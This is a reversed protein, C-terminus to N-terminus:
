SEPTASGDLGDLGSSAVVNHEAGHLQQRGLGALLYPAMTPHIRPSGFIALTAAAVGVYRGTRWAWGAFALAAAALVLWMPMPIPLAGEQQLPYHEIGFPLVMAWLAVAILASLAARGYERRVLYVFAFALPTIKLSAALGIWLPGSRRRIGWALGALMLNEVNGMWAQQLLLPAMLALLMLSTLSRIRVLPAVLYAAAAMQVLMWGVIVAQHPLYTLPVWLLAFWPAYRYTTAAAEDTLLPFLPQGERLRVGADWYATADPGLANMKFPDSLAYALLYTAVAVVIAAYGLQRALRRWNITTAPLTRDM